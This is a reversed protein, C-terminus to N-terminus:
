APVKLIGFYSCILSVIILGFIIQIVTLKKGSILKYIGFTLLVPLLAPMIQDLIQTQIPM